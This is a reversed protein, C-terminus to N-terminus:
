SLKVGLAAAIKQIAEFEMRRVEIPGTSTDCNM